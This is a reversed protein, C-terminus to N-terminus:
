NSSCITEGGQPVHARAYRLPLRSLPQMATIFQNQLHFLLSIPNSFLYFLVVVDHRVFFVNEEFGNGWEPKVDAHRFGIPLQDHIDLM